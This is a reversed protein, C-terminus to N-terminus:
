KGGPDTPLLLKLNLYAAYIADGGELKSMHDEAALVFESISEQASEIYEFAASRSESLFKIFGESQVAEAQSVADQLKGAVALRDIEAQIFKSLLKRNKLKTGISDILVALGVISIAIVLVLETLNIM